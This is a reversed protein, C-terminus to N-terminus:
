PFNIREVKTALKEHKDNTLVIFYLGNTLGSIDIDTFNDTKIIQLQGICNYIELTKILGFQQPIPINIKGTTPNPFVSISNTSDNDNEMPHSLTDCDFPTGWTETGKEFYELSKGRAFGGLGPGYTGWTYYYDGGLGSYNYTLWPYNCQIYFFYISTDSQHYTYNFSKGNHNAISCTSLPIAIDDIVIVEGPLANLYSYNSFVIISSITDINYSTSGNNYYHVKERRKLKYIYENSNQQRTIVEFCSTKSYGTSYGPHYESNEVSIHFVDGVDYNFFDQTTINKYGINLESIGCLDYEPITYYQSYFDTEDFLLLRFFGFNKSLWIQRNNIDRNIISGSFTKIKFSIIKASDALLSDALFIQMISDVTAEIYYSDVTNRTLIWSEGKIATQKICITDLGSRIFYTYGSNTEIIKEGSMKDYLISYISVNGNFGYYRLNRMNYYVTDFNNYVTDFNSYRISDIRVTYVDTGNKYFSTYEPRVVKYPQGFGCNFLFCILILIYIKKM